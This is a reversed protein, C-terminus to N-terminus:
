WLNHGFTGGLSFEVYMLQLLSGWGPLYDYFWFRYSLAGPSIAPIGVLMQSYPFPGRRSIWFNGVSVFLSFIGPLFM